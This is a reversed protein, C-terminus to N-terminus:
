RDVYLVFHPKRHKYAAKIGKLISKNAMQADRSAHLGPTDIATINV